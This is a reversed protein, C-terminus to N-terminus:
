PRVCYFFVSMENTGNPTLVTCLVDLSPVVGRAAIVEEDNANAPFGIEIDRNAIAFPRDLTISSYRDIM